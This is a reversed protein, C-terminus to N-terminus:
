RLGYGLKQAEDLLGERDFEGDDTYIGNLLAIEHADARYATEEFEDELLRFVKTIADITSEQLQTTVDDRFDGTNERRIKHPMGDLDVTAQSPTFDRRSAGESDTADTVTVNSPDAGSDDSPESSETGGFDYQADKDQPM